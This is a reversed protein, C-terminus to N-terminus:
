SACSAVSTSCIVSLLVVWASWFPTHSWGCAVFVFFWRGQRFIHRYVIGPVMRLTPQPEQQIESSM